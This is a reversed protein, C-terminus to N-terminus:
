FKNSFLIKFFYITLPLKTVQINMVSFIGDHGNKRHFQKELQKPTTKLSRCYSLLIYVKSGIIKYCSSSTLAFELFQKFAFDQLMIYQCASKDSTIKLILTM